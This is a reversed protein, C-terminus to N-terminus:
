TFSRVVDDAGNSLLSAALSRALARGKDLPGVAFDRYSRRADLDNIVAFIRMRENDLVSAWAGAPVHCNGGIARMVELEAMACATAAEDRITEVLRITRADDRRCAVALTGQGAAPVFLEPPFRVYTYDNHGVMGLRLLGAEAMVVGDLEEVKELRTGLNGRIPVPELDPRMHRLETARRPSGTGIRGGEPISHFAPHRTVMVDAPPGRRPVVVHFPHDLRVDKLSHVAMDIEGSELAMDLEKTFLGKNIGEKGFQGRYIDGSTRIERVEVDADLMGLVIDTQARALPSGRTGCIM